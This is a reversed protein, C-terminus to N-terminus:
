FDDGFEARLQAIVADAHAETFYKGQRGAPRTADGLGVVTKGQELRRWLAREETDLVRERILNPHVNRQWLYANPWADLGVVSRATSFDPADRVTAVDNEDNLVVTVWTRNWGDDDSAAADLRPPEHPVTASRRGNADPDKGAAYYITRALAPALTHADDCEFFWDRPLDAHLADRLEKRRQERPKGLDNRTFGHEAVHILDGFTDAERPADIAKLFATVARQIRQQRETDTDGFEVTYDPQEDHIVNTKTRLSPVYAFPDTAVVLDYRPSGDDTFGNPPWQTETQCRLEGPCCPLVADGRGNASAEREHAVYGREALREARSHASSVAISKDEVQHEFWVSAPVGEIYRPERDDDGEINEPDFAGGAVDCAEKYGLLLKVDLGADDAMDHAEDRADTTSAFLVVPRDGTVAEDIQRWFTSSAEHTKGLGTPADLVTYGRERFAERLSEGLRDRAEDTSPWELGRRRAYRVLEDHPRALMAFPIAPVPENGSASESDNADTDEDAYWDQAGVKALVSDRYADDTREGWKQLNGADLVSAVVTRDGFGVWMDVWNALAFEAASRDTYGASAYRGDYIARYKEGTPSREFAAELRERITKDNPREGIGSVNRVTRSERQGRRKTAPRMDDTLDSDALTAVERDETIHYVGGTPHVSGPVVVYWNEARVEGAGNPLRANRVPDDLDNRYTEHPGRGSGSLVELTPDATPAPFAEPDDHDAFAVGETGHSPRGAYM